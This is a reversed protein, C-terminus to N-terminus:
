TIRGSPAIVDIPHYRRTCFAVEVKSKEVVHGELLLKQKKEEIKKETYPWNITFFTFLNKSISPLTKPRSVSSSTGEIEFDEESSLSQVSKVDVFEFRESKQFLNNNDIICLPFSFYRVKPKKDEIIVFDFLSYENELLDRQRLFYTDDEQYSDTDSEYSSEDDFRNLPIRNLAAKKSRSNSV